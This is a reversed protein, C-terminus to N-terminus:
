IVTIRTRAANVQWVNLEEYEEICEQVQDPKFGAFHSLYTDFANGTVFREVIWSVVVLFFILQLHLM